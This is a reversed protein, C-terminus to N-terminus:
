RTARVAAGDFRSPPAWRQGPAYIPKESVAEGQELASEIAAILARASDRTLEVAIRAGPGAGPNVFDINLSHEQPLHFPHDFSVWARDVPFWGDAGKASGEVSTKVSIQTCM